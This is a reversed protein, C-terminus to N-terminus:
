RKVINLLRVAECVDEITIPAGSRHKTLLFDKVNKFRPSLENAGIARNIVDKITQLAYHESHNDTLYIQAIKRKTEFLEWFEGIDDRLITRNCTVSPIEDLSREILYILNAKEENECFIGVTYLQDEFKFFTNSYIYHNPFIIRELECGLRWLEPNKRQQNFDM